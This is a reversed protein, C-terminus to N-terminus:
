LDARGWSMSACPLVRQVTTSHAPSDRLRHPCSPSFPTKSPPCCRKQRFPSASLSLKVGARLVHPPPTPPHAWWEEGRHHMQYM